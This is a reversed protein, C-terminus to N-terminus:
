SSGLADLAAPLVRLRHLLEADEPGGLLAAVQEVVVHRPDM